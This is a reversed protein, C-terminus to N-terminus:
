KAIFGILNSGYFSASGAGVRWRIDYTYTGAGPNDVWNLHLSNDAGNAGYVAVEHIETGNRYLGLSFYAAGGSKNFDAESLLVVKEGTAVTVAISKLLTSTGFLTTTESHYVPIIGNPGTAGTPGAAGTAGTSGNTGAVGTAGVAGTSGTAGNTGTAGTPGVLGSSWQPVGGVVQLTQGNAGTLIAKLDGNADAFVLKDSGAAPASIFSGGTALGGVRVGSTLGAIHLKQLPVLVGIGIDGAASVRLRELSNTAVVFDKNDITGIFNNNVAVGIAATSATTGNNGVVKWYPAVPNVVEAQSFALLAVCVGIILNFGKLLTRQKAM